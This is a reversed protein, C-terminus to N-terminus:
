RRKEYGCKPCRYTSAYSATRTGYGGSVRDTHGAYSEGAYALVSGCQPCSDMGIRKKWGEHLRSGYEAATAVLLLWTGAFWLPNATRREWVVFAFVGFVATWAVLSGLSYAKENRHGSALAAATFGWGIFAMVGLATQTPWFVVLYRDLALIVGLAVAACGFAIMLNQTRETM